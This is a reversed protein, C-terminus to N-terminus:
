AAGPRTLRAIADLTDPGYWGAYTNVALVDLKDVLPDQIALVDEANAVTREVLLAASVLRTPDLQRVNDAMAGHFRTRSPSVPTESGVSWLIVAARNRDRYITEAQMALAKRLVAPNDWDVTWYVPIESWVLQGMEDALRV